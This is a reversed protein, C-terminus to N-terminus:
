LVGTWFVTQFFSKLETTWWFNNIFQNYMDLNNNAQQQNIIHVYVANKM